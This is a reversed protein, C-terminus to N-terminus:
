PRASLGTDAQDSIIGPPYRRTPPPLHPQWMFPSMLTEQSSEVTWGARIMQHNMPAGRFGPVM